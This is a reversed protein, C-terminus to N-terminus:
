GQKLFDNDRNTKLALKNLSTNMEALSTKYKELSTTINIIKLVSERIGNVKNM